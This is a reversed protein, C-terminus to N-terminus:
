VDRISSKRRVPVDGVVNLKSYVFKDPALGVVVANENLAQGEFERFDDLADDHLM